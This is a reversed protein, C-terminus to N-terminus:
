SGAQPDAAVQLMGAHVTLVARAHLQSARSETIGMAKAVQQLQLGRFYHLALVTQQDLALNRIEASVRTLMTTTFANSEVDTSGRVELDEGELSVPRQAMGRLTARVETVSLGSRTALERDTLGGKDAGAAQLAKARTRLSRTAWDARRIEDMLAGHVRRQVFPRFYEMRGPDYANKECYARWRAAAMVLGHYAIARMEDLELAHPATRWVQMALSQALDMYDAIWAEQDADIIPV